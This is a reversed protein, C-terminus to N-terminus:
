GDKDGLHALLRKCEEKEKFTEASNLRRLLDTTSETMKRPAILTKEVRVNALYPKDCRRCRIELTDGDVDNESLEVIYNQNCHPCTVLSM